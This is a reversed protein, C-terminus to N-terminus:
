LAICVGTHSEAVRINAIGAIIIIIIASNNTWQFDFSAFNGGFSGVSSLCGKVREQHLIMVTFGRERGGM